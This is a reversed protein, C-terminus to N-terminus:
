RLACFSSGNNATNRYINGGIRRSVHRRPSMHDQWRSRWRLIDLSKRLRRSKREMALPQKLFSPASEFSNPRKQLKPLSAGGTEESVSFSPVANDYLRRHSPELFAVRGESLSSKSQQLGLIRDTVPRGLPRGYALAAPGTATGCVCFFITPPSTSVSSHGCLEGDQEIARHSNICDLFYKHFGYGCLTKGYSKPYCLPCIDFHRTLTSRPYQKDYRGYACYDFKSLGM